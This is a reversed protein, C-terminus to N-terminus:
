LPSGLTTSTDGRNKGGCSGAGSKDCGSCCVNRLHPGADEITAFTADLAVLAVCYAVCATGHSTQQAQRYLRGCGSVLAACVCFLPAVRLHVGVFRFLCDARIM